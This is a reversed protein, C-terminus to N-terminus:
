QFCLRFGDVCEVHQGTSPCFIRPHFFLCRFFCTSLWGWGTAGEKRKKKKTLLLISLSLPASPSFAVHPFFPRVHPFTTAVQPFFAAVQPVMRSLFCPSVLFLLGIWPNKAPAEGGQLFALPHDGRARGPVDAPCFRAARMLTKPTRPRAAFARRWWGDPPPPSGPWSFARRLPSPQKRDVLLSNMTCYRKLNCGRIVSMKTKADLRM